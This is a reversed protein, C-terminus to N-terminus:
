VVLQWRNAIIEALLRCMIAMFLATQVDISVHQKTFQTSAVIMASIFVFGARLQWPMMSAQAASIMILFCMSCHMSPSCNLGRLDCRYVLRLLRDSMRDGTVEPREFSTPCAIYIACSLVINLVVSYMHANYLEASYFYLVLPFLAILPFWTVYAYVWVPRLPIREDRAREVNRPNKQLYQCGFYGASQLALVAAQILVIMKINDM